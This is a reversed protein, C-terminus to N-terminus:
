GGRSEPEAPPVTGEVDLYKLGVIQGDAEEQSWAVAARRPTADDGLVIEYERDVDLREEVIARLGGRSVNLTWGTTEFGAARVVVRETSEKRAGGESRRPTRLPSDSSSSPPRSKVLM